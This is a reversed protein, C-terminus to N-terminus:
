VADKEGLREEEKEPAMAPLSAKRVRGAARPKSFVWLDTPGPSSHMLGDGSPLPSFREGRSGIRERLRLYALRHWALQYRRGLLRFGARSWWNPFEGEQWSAHIRFWVEGSRHKKTLLFWEMGREIHGELTDYRFAFVTEDREERVRVANVRVGCLYHLGLVQIELALTRGRLPEAPDFHGVVIGPDSFQYAEVAARAREFPGGRVPEGRSELGVMAETYYRNWRSSGDVAAFNLPLDRFRELRDRLEADTWGHGFRWEAM